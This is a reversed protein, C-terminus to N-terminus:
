KLSKSFIWNSLTILILKFNGPEFNSFYFINIPTYHYNSKYIVQRGCLQLSFNMSATLDRNSEGNYPIHMEDFNLATINLRLSMNVFKMLNAFHTARSKNASNIHM